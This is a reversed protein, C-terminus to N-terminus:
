MRADWHTGTRGGEIMALSVFVMGLERGIVCWGEKDFDFSDAIPIAMRM